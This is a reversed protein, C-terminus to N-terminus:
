HSKYKGWHDVQVESNSIQTISMADKVRSIAIGEDLLALVCKINEVDQKSYLRHGSDKRKPQILGYRREWARLTVSNVGTMDSVTSISFLSQPANSSM